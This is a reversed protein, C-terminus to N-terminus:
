DLTPISIDSIYRSSRKNLTGVERKLTAEGLEDQSDQKFALERVLTRGAVAWCFSVFSTHYFLISMLSPFVMNM